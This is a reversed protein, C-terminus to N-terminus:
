ASKVKNENNSELNKDHKYDILEQKIRKLDNQLKEYPNKWQGNDVCPVKTSITMELSNILLQVESETYRVVVTGVKEM